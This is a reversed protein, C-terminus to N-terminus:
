DTAVELFDEAVFGTDGSEVVEVPYWTYGERETPDGTIALQTGPELQSVIDGSTSPEDRLNLPDSGVVAIDGPALNLPEPPPESPTDTSGSAGDLSIYRIEDSIISDRMQLLRTTAWPQTFIGYWGTITAGPLVTVSAPPHPQTMALLHNWPEGDVDVLELATWSFFQPAASINRATIQIGIASGFSGWGEAGPTGLAGVRYDSIEAYTQVDITEQATVEWVTTQVPEGLGAPADLSTGANTPSSATDFVPLAAGETLAFTASFRNGAQIGPDFLLVVNTTDNVLGATWGTVSEGPALLVDLSPDPLAISPCHRLIGDTGTAFFDSAAVPHPRRGTNTMTLRALVYALGEPPPDSQASISAVTATGEAVVSEDVRLLLPGASADTGIPTPTAIIPASLQTM